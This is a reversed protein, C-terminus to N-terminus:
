NYLSNAPQSSPKSTLSNPDNSLIYIDVLYALISQHPGLTIPLDGLLTRIGRSFMLPSLPDGQRVV